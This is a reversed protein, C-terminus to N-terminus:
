PLSARLSAKRGSRGLRLVHQVEDDHRDRLQVPTCRISLGVLLVPMWHVVLNLKKQKEKRGVGQRTDHFAKYRLFAAQLLLRHVLTPMVEVAKHVFRLLPRTPGLEVQAKVADTVFELVNEKGIKGTKAVERTVADYAEAKADREKADRKNTPASGSLIEDALDKLRNKAQELSKAHRSDWKKSTKFVIKFSIGIGRALHREECYVRFNIGGAVWEAALSNAERALEDRFADRLLLRNLWVEDLGHPKRALVGQTMLSLPIDAFRTKHYVSAGRIVRSFEEALLPKLKEPSEGNRNLPM